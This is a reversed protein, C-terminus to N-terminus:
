LASQSGGPLGIVQARSGHLGHDCDLKTVGLRKDPIRSPIPRSPKFRGPKGPSRHTLTLDDDAASGNAPLVVGRVGGAARQRDSELLRRCNLWDVWELTAHEVAALHRWPGPRHIVEVRYLGIISEASANNYSDGVRGVSTEVGARCAARHLSHSTSCGRNSHHVVSRSAWAPGCRRNWRMLLSSTMCRARRVGGWSAGLSSTSSSPSMSSARGPRWTTLDALHRRTHQMSLNFGGVLLTRPTRESLGQHGHRTNGKGIGSRSAVRLGTLVRILLSRENPTLAIDGRGAVPQM